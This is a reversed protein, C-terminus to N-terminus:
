SEGGGVLPLIRDVRFYVLFRTKGKRGGREPCRRRLVEIMPSNKEEKVRTLYLRRGQWTAGEEVFLYVARPNSQLNSHSLRDAMIFAVTKGGMFHPRAYVAANVRGESDATALVGLGERKEFYNGLNM